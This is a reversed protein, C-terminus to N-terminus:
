FEGPRGRKRVDSEGNSELFELEEKYIQDIVEGMEKIEEQQDKTLVELQYALVLEDREKFESAVAIQWKTGRIPKLQNLLLRAKVDSLELEVPKLGTKPSRKGLYRYVFSAVEHSFCLISYKGYSCRLEANAVLPLCKEASQTDEIVEYRNFFKKTSPKWKSQHEEV